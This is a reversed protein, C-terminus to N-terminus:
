TFSGFVLAVPIQGRYDSLKVRYKGSVDYLEFDPALAGAKPANAGYKKQWDIEKKRYQLSKTIFNMM